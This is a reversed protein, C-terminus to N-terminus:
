VVVVGMHGVASNVAPFEEKGGSQKRLRVSYICLHMMHDLVICDNDTLATLEGLIFCCVLDTLDILPGVSSGEAYPVKM